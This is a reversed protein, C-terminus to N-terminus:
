KIIEYYKKAMMTSTFHKCYHQRSNLSFKEVLDQNELLLLMGKVFGKVDDKDYMFGAESYKFVEKLGGVNTTLIPRGLSMAEILTLGFAEQSQSLCLLALANNIQFAPNNTFAYIKIFNDLNNDKISNNINKFEHDKGYGFVKIKFDSNHRKLKKVIKILLDYGKISTYTSLMIFTKSKSIKLNKDYLDDVGNYIHLVKENKFIKNRIKISEICSLSVTIIKSVSNFVLKDIFKDIFYFIFKIKMAHSHFLLYSNSNGYLSNWSILGIRCILSAPYGGNVSLFRDFKNNIFFNKFYFFYFFSLFPYELLNNSLRFFARFFFSKFLKNNSFGNTIKTTFFFNYRKIKTLKKVRKKIDNLGPHSKNCIITFEDNQNPWNNILNIIFTDLGGRYYNETLICINM